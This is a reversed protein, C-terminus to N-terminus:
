VVALMSAYATSQSTSSTAPTQTGFRRIPSAQFISRGQFLETVDITGETAATRIMKFTVKFNSIVRTEPDQIARLNKIAMNQFVAWPTQVTFLTRNRWYGYFQQFMVQQKSQNNSITGTNANFAGDELGNTGIVNEGGQGTISSWASIASNRVNKATSYLSSATNVGRLATTSLGPVYADVIRLKNALTNLFALGDPLIDNLEGIFGDTTVIEPRLAIQDQIAYNKEVYHDTIDSELDATQEGEYHFLLSPPQQFSFGEDSQPRYGVTKQPSVLVLNALSAAATTFSALGTLNTTLSM